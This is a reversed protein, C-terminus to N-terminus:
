TKATPIDWLKDSQFLLVSAIKQLQVIREPKLSRSFVSKQSLFSDMYLM